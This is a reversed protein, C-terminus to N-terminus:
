QMPVGSLQRLSVSRPQFAVRSSVTGVEHTDSHHSLRRWLVGRDPRCFFRQCVDVACCASRCWISTTQFLSCGKESLVTPGWWLLHYVVPRRSVWGTTMRFIGWKPHSLKPCMRLTVDPLLMLRLPRPRLGLLRRWSMSICWLWGFAHKQLPQVLTWRNKFNQLVPNQGPILVFTLRHLVHCARSLSGTEFVRPLEGVRFRWRSKKSMVM